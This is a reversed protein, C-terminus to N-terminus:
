AKRERIAKDRIVKNVYLKIVYLNDDIAKKQNKRIKKVTKKMM